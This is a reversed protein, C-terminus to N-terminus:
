HMGSAGTTRSQSGMRVEDRDRGERSVSRSGRRGTRREALPGYVEATDFFTVGRDVAARLLSAM